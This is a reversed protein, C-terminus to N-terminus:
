DGDRLLIFAPGADDNHLVVPCPDDSGQNQPIDTHEHHKEEEKQPHGNRPGNNGSRDFPDLAFLPLVAYAKM